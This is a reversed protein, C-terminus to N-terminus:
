PVFGVLNRFICFIEVFVAACKRHHVKPLFLHVTREPFDESDWGRMEM